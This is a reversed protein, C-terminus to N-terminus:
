QGPAAFERRAEVLPSLDPDASKWYDFFAQYQQLAKVRDGQLSEARALGLMSLPYAVNMGQVQCLVFVGRHALPFSFDSAAAAGDKLALHALGRLYSGIGLIDYDAAPALVTLADQPRNRGLEIVADIDPLFVHNIITDQPYARALDQRIALARAPQGCLAFAIAASGQMTREQDLKLSRELNPVADTCSGVLARDLTQQTILTATANGLKQDTMRAIARQWDKGAEAFRGENEHILAM